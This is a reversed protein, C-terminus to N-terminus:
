AVFNRFFTYEKGKKARQKFQISSNIIKVYLFFIQVYGM